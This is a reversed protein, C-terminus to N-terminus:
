KYFEEFPTDPRKSCYSCNPDGCNKALWVNCNPCFEADYKDFYVIPYDCVECKEKLLIGGIRWKGCLVVERRRKNEWIKM